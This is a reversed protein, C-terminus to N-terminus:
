KLSCILQAAASVDHKRERGRLVTREAESENYLLAILMSEDAVQSSGM